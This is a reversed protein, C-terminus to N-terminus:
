QISRNFVHAVVVQSDQTRKLKSNESFYNMAHCESMTFNYFIETNIRQIKEKPQAVLFPFLQFGQM